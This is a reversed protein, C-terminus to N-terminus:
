LNYNLPLSLGISINFGQIPGLDKKDKFSWGYGVGLEIINFLGLGVKPTITYPTLEAKVFPWVAVTNLYYTVGLEPIVHTKKNKWTFDAGADIKLYDAYGLDTLGWFSVKVFNNSQYQYVVTPGVIWNSKSRDQARALSFTSIALLLLILRM